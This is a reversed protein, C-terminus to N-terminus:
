QGLFVVLYGCHFALYIYEYLLIQVVCIGYGGMPRPPSVIENKQIVGQAIFIGRVFKLKSEEQFMVNLMMEGSTQPNHM